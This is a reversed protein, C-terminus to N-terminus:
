NTIIITIFIINRLAIPEQMWLGKSEYCHVGLKKPTETARTHLHAPPLSWTEMQTQLQFHTQTPNFFGIFLNCIELQIVFIWTSVSAPHNLFNKLLTGELKRHKDQAEKRHARVCAIAPFM